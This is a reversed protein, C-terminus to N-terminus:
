TFQFDQITKIQDALSVEEASREELFKKIEAFCEAMNALHNDTFTIVPIKYTKFYDNRKKMEKNWQEVLDNNVAAQTKKKLGDISYHTSQPSLEFGVFQMTHSNLVAYDLRYQHKAEVGAYRLEPILFPESNPDASEAVYAIYQDAIAKEYISNSVRKLVSRYFALFEALSGWKIPESSAPDLLGTELVHGITWYGYNARRMESKDNTWVGKRFAPAIALGWTLNNNGFWLSWLIDSPKARTREIFNRYFNRTLFTFTYDRLTEDQLFRVLDHESTTQYTNGHYKERQAQEIKQIAQMLGNTWRALFDNPNSFQTRVSDVFVMNNKGIYAHLSQVSLNKEKIESARELAEPQLEKLRETLDTEIEQFEESITRAM